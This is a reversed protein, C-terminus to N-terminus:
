GGPQNPLALGMSRLRAAVAAPNAGAQIAAQAQAMVSAVNANGAAPTPQAAAQPAVPAQQPAPAPAQPAQPAQPPPTMVGALGGAPAQPPAPAAPGPRAGAPVMAAALGSQPAQPAYQPPVPMGKPWAIQANPALVVQSPGPRGGVTERDHVDQTLGSGDAGAVNAIAKTIASNWDGRVQPDNDHLWTAQLRIPDLLAQSPVNGPHWYTGPKQAQIRNTIQQDLAASEAVSSAGPPPRGTLTAVQANVIQARQDPSVVPAAADAPGQVTPATPPAGQTVPANPSVSPGQVGSIVQAVSSPTQAVPAPAAPPPPNLADQVIGAQVQATSDPRPSTGSAAADANTMLQTAGGPGQVPVYKSDQGAITNAVNPDYYPAHTAGAQAATIAVPQGTSADVTQTLTRRDMGAQSAAENAMSANAGIRAAGLTAGAGIGAVQTRNALDLGQGTATNGMAAVGTGASFRDATGQSINGGAAANGQYSAALIPGLAAAQTPYKILLAGVQQAKNPDNLANPDQLLATAQALDAQQQTNAATQANQNATQAGLLGAQARAQPNGAIAGALGSLSDGAAAVGTQGSYNQYQGVSLPTPGSLSAM